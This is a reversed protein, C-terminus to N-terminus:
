YVKLTGARYVPTEFGGAFKIWLTYEGPELTTVGGNPGVLIRGHPAIWEGVLWDDEEPSTDTLLFAFQPPVALQVQAGGARTVVTVKVYETSIAALDM